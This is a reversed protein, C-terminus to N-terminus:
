SVGFLYGLNILYDSTEVYEILYGGGQFFNEIVVGDDMVGDAVDSVSSLWLDQGNTSIFCVLQDLSIGALVVKDIGGGYGTVLSESVNDNILDRGQGMVKVYVDNGFGGYLRDFGDGGDLLDNEDGGHIFDGGLGGYLSDNGYQGVLADDGFYGYLIDNGADGQIFDVFSSGYIVDDGGLALYSHATEDIGMILSRMDFVDNSNTGTKSAM